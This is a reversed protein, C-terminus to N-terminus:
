RPPTGRCIEWDEWPQRKGPLANTIESNCIHLFVLEPLHRSDVSSAARACIECHPPSIATRFREGEVTMGAFAPVWSVEAEANSTANALGRDECQSASNFASADYSSM